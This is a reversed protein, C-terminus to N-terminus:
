RVESGFFALFSVILDGEFCEISMRDCIKAYIFPSYLERGLFPFRSLGRSSFLTQTEGCCPFNCGVCVRQPYIAKTIIKTKFSRM